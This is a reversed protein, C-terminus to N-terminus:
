GGPLAVEGPTIEPAEQRDLLRLQERALHVQARAPDMGLTALRGLYEDGDIVRRNFARGLVALSDAKFDLEFRLDAVLQYRDIEATTYGVSEMELSFEIPTTWGEQFRSLIPGSGFARLEAEEQTLGELKRRLVDFSVYADILEPRIGLGGTNSRFEMESLRGTRLGARYAGLLDLAVNTEFELDAQTSFQAVQLDSYGLSAMELAFQNADILGERFRRIVIGRGAARLETQEPTPDEAVRVIQIIRVRFDIEEAPITLRTLELRFEAETILEKRFATQWATVERALRTGRRDLDLTELEAELEVDLHILPTLLARAQDRDILGDRYQQRAETNRTTLRPQIALREVFRTLNFADDETYGLSRYTAEVQELSFIDMDYLRRVDVRTVVAFSIKKLQDRWFPLIDAERFLLDLGADDIVPHIPTGSRLAFPETDPTQVSFSSRHLMEFGQQISPLEWHSAWFMRTFEEPLGQGTTFPLIQNPFDEDLRLRSRLAPDFAERVAFRILDQIQPLVKRQDLLDSISEEEWGLKVMREIAEAQTIGQLFENALGQALTGAGAAADQMEKRLLFRMILNFDPRQLALERLWDQHNAAIGASRLQDIIDPVEIAERFSLRTVSVPDLLVNPRGQNAFYEVDRLWPAIVGTISGSVASGGAAQGLFAAAPDTPNALQAVLGRLPADAPLAELILDWLPGGARAFAQELAELFTNVIFTVPPGAVAEAQEWFIRWLDSPQPIPLTNLAREIPNAFTQLVGEIGQLVTASVILGASSLEPILADKVLDPLGLIDDIAEQGLGSLANRLAKIDSPITEETGQFIDSLRNAWTKWWDTKLFDDLPVIDPDPPAAAPVTFLCRSGFQIANDIIIDVQDIIAVFPVRYVATNWEQSVIVGSEAVWQINDRRGDDNLITAVLTIEEAAEVQTSVSSLIDGSFQTGREVHLSTVLGPTPFFVPPTQFTSRCDLQIEGDIFIDVLAPTEFNPAKWLVQDWVQDLIEGHSARWEINDRRGDDNLITAVLDVREFYTVGSIVGSTVIGSGRPDREVLSCAPGPGETSLIFDDVFATDNRGEHGLNQIAILVRAEATSSFVRADMASLDATMGNVILSDYKARDVGVVMKVVAFNPVAGPWNLPTLVPIRTNLPDFVLAQDADLELILQYEIQFQGTFISVGIGLQRPASETSFSVEVGLLTTTPLPFFRRIFALNPATSGTTLLVSQSGSRAQLTSLAVSGGAGAVVPTWELTAAEFIDSEVIVPM